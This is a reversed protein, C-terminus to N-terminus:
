TTQPWCAARLRSEHANIHFSFQTFILGDYLQFFIGLPFKTRSVVFFESMSICERICLLVFHMHLLVSVELYNGVDFCILV